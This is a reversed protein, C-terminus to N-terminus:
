KSEFTHAGDWDADPSAVRWSAIRQLYLAFLPQAEQQQLTLLQMEARDWDQARYLKLAHQFLKDHDLIHQEVEGKLGLPEFIAVPELKGKVRVRDVERFVVDDVLQSTAEGVLIDVGYYRTLGELRSALNVADGMVTYAKRYQSGMDGVTMRGTNVGVGIEIAPWGHEKLSPALERMAKQM